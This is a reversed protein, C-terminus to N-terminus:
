KGDPDSKSSESSSVTLLREIEKLIKKILM